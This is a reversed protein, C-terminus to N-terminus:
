KLRGKIKDIGAQACALEKKTDHPHGEVGIAGYIKDGVKILLVGEHPNWDKNAAVKDAFAKDTKTRAVLEVGNAKNAAAFIAARRAGNSDASLAGDAGLAVRLGGTDDVVAVGVNDNNAKCAAMAAEAAELSLAYSPGGLGGMNYQLTKGPANEDQALAPGAVLLAAAAILTIRM